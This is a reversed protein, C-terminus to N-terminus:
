LPWRGRLLRLAHKVCKNSCGNKNARTIEGVADVGAVGAEKASQAKAASERQRSCQRGMVAGYSQSEAESCAAPSQKCSSEGAIGSVM